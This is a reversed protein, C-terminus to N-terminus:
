SPYHDGCGDASIQLYELIIQGEQSLASINYKAQVLKKLNEAIQRAFKKDRILRVIADAFEEPKDALLVDQNHTVPIGEAGLTTSVVPIGCVGAELIKFRTGSEFRLPVLVVDAHCLYPLLSPMGGLITIGPASIDSLIKHSGSGAIYFHIEPIQQRLNPLVNNIVWRAADEMPSNKFFSGALYISPRKYDQPPAPINLYSETDIVNSFIKIQEPHKALGLYYEADVLSVATTVDALETGWREEEEKYKGRIAIKERAEQSKAYPIERLVFRSWVSDTDVVVKYNSNAKIAKLFHYSINGYGLWIVDPKIQEALTLLGLYDRRVRRIEPFNSLIDKKLIRRSLFNSAEILFKESRRYLKIYLSEPLVSPAFHFSKCYAKYFSLGENQGLSKLSVRSYIHLEAIQSLAKISNEIRLYPGGTAPHRLIPTTFLIRPYKSM